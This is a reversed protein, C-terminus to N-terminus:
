SSVIRENEGPRFLQLKVSYHTRDKDHLYTSHFRDSSYLSVKPKGWKEYFEKDHEAIDFEKPEHDFIKEYEIGCKELKEEIEDPWKIITNQETDHFRQGLAFLFNFAEHLPFRFLYNEEEYEFAIKPGGIYKDFIDNRIFNEGIEVSLKERTERDEDSEDVSASLGSDSDFIYGADGFEDVPYFYQKGNWGIVRQFRTTLGSVSDYYETFYYRRGFLNETDDKDLDKRKKEILKEYEKDSSPNVLRKYIANWNPEISMDLRYSFNQKQNGSMIQQKTNKSRYILYAVVAIVILWIPIYM